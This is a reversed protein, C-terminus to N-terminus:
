GVELTNRCLEYCESSPPTSSLHHRLAAGPACLLFVGGGAIECKTYIPPTDCIRGNPVYMVACYCIALQLSRWGIPDDGGM